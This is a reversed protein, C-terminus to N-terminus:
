ESTADMLYAIVNAADEEKRLGAFAMSTGKVYAKPKALFAAMTDPAWTIESTAMAESFKFGDMQGAQRGFVAHLSPGAGNKGAKVSHCAKCKRFIKKGAEADGTVDLAVTTAPAAPAAEAKQEEANFILRLTIPATRTIGPLDALEMLKTIGADIGADEASLFLMDNTTVMVSTDSLRAVFMEAEIDVAAGVFSLVGEVDIVTTEGVSLGSVAAMDIQANLTAAPANKFVYEIMRENRIDINTEVSGLAIEITASGDPAVTGTLDEFSHVEGVTDKKISGFAIKSSAGDLSWSTTAHGDALSTTALGFVCFGILAYKFAHFM